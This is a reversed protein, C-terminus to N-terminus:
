NQGSQFVVVNQNKIGNSIKTRLSFVVAEERGSFNASSRSRNFYYFDKILQIGPDYSTEHQPHLAFEVTVVYVSFREEGGTSLRINFATSKQVHGDGSPNRLVSIHISGIHM